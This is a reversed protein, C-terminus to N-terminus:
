TRALDRKHAIRRRRNLDIFYERRDWRDMVLLAESDTNLSKHFEDRRIYLRYWWLKIRKNWVRRRLDVFFEHM